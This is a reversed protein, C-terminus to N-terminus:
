QNLEVRERLRKLDWITITELYYREPSRWGIFRANGNAFQPQEALNKDTLMKSWGRQRAGDKSLRPVSCYTSPSRVKGPFRPGAQAGQSIHAMHRYCNINEWNKGWWM